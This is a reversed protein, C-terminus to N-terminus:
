LCSHIILHIYEQPCIIHFLEATSLLCRPSFGFSDHLELVYECAILGDIRKMQIIIGYSVFRNAYMGSLCKVRVCVFMSYFTHASLAVPPRKNLFLRISFLNCM